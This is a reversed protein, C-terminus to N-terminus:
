RYNGRDVTADIFHVGAEPAHKLGEFGHAWLESYGCAACVFASLYGSKASDTGWQFFAKDNSERLRVNALRLPMLEDQEVDDTGVRDIRWIRRGNCKPCSLSKKM